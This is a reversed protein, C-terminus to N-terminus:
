ARRRPSHHRKSSTSAKSSSHQVRRSSFPTATDVCRPNLGKHIHRSEPGLDRSISSLFATVDHRTTKFAEEWHPMDFTARELLPIDEAPIEGHEAWAKCVALEVELWTEFKFQDQWVAKMAERAYRDIM